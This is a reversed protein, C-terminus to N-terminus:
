FNFSFYGSITTVAVYGSLKQAAQYEEEGQSVTGTVIGIKYAPGETGADAAPETTSASSCAVLGISMCAVLLLSVFKKM